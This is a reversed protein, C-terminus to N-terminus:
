RKVVARGGGGGDNLLRFLLRGARGLVRLGGRGGLRSGLTGLGEELLVAEVDLGGVQRQRRRGLTLTHLLVNAHTHVARAVLAVRRVAGVLRALVAAVLAALLARAVGDLLGLVLALLLERSLGLDAVLLAAAVDGVADGDGAAAAALVQDALLDALADVALAMAAIGVKRGLLHAGIALM